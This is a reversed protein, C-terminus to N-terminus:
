LLEAKSSEAKKLSITLPEESVFDFTKELKKIRFTTQFKSLSAFLNFFFFLSMSWFTNDSNIGEASIRLIYIGGDCAFCTTKSIINEANGLEKPCKDSPM